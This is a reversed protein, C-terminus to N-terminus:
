GLVLQAEQQKVYPQCNPVDGHSCVSFRIPLASMKYRILKSFTNESHRFTPDRFCHGLDPVQGRSVAYQQDTYVVDTHM